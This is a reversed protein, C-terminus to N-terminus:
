VKIFEEYIEKKPTSVRLALIFALADDDDEKKCHAYFQKALERDGLIADLTLANIKKKERDYIERVAPDLRKEAEEEEKQKLKDLASNVESAFKKIGESYAHLLQKAAKQKEAKKIKTCHEQAKKLAARVIDAKKSANDLKRSAGKEQALAEAGQEMDPKILEL